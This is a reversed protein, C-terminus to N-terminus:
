EQEILSYLFKKVKGTKLQKERIRAKISSEFEETYILRFPKFPKTSKNFSFNHQHLRENLDTTMGVYIFKHSISKIAYVTFLM